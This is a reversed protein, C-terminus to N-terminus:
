KYPKKAVVVSTVFSNVSRLSEIAEFGAGRLFESHQHHNRPKGSTMALTYFGFYADGSRTPSKFGAMPESIVVCGGPNLAAFAKSLLLVVTSDDHDYLVRNFFIVDGGEPFKDNFFDGSILNIDKTFDGQEMKEQAAKIVSPLDFLTLNLGKYRRRVESLFTGNGGGIDILHKCKKLQVLNLTEEAVIHQSSGMLSSYIAAQGDTIKKGSGVYSWFDKLETEFNGRLLEVPDRLDSYFIKHHAIMDKLGAVGEIAAGLRTLSYSSSGKRRLLGIATAANCLLLIKESEIECFDSLESISKKGPLLYEFLKLEVMALLVQSYVFGSVLDYIQRGDSAVLKKLLPIKKAFTHFKPDSVLKSTWSFFWDM